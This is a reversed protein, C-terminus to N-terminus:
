DATFNIQSKPRSFIVVITVQGLFITRRFFALFSFFVARLNSRIKCVKGIKSESKKFISFLIPTLQQFNGKILGTVSDRSTAGSDGKILGKKVMAARRFHNTKANSTSSAQWRNVKKAAGSKLKGARVM